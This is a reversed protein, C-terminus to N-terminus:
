CSGRASRRFAEVNVENGSSDLLDGQPLESPTFFLPQGSSESSEVFFVLYGDRPLPSTLPHELGFGSPPDEGPRAVVEDGPQSQGTIRWLVRDTAPDVSRDDTHILAVSEVVESDCAVFVVRM